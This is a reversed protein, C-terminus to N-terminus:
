SVRAQTELWQELSKIPIIIKKGVLIRPFGNQKTLQYARNKGIGLCSALEAVSITLKNNTEM